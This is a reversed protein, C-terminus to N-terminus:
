RHWLTAATLFLTANWHCLFTNLTHIILASVKEADDERFRRIIM